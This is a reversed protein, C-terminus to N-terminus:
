SPVGHRLSTFDAVTHPPPDHLSSRPPGQHPQLNRQGKHATPIGADQQPVAQFTPPKQLLSGALAQPVLRGRPQRRLKGLPAATMTAEAGPMKRAQQQIRVEVTRDRGGRGEPCRKREEAESLKAEAEVNEGRRPEEAPHPSLGGSSGSAKGARSSLQRWARELCKAGSKPCSFCNMGARWGPEVQSARVTRPHFPSTGPSGQCFCLEAPPHASTPTCRPSLGGAM